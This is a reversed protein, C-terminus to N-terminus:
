IVDAPLQLFIKGWRDDSQVFEAFPGGVRNDTADDCESFPNNSEGDVIRVAYVIFTGIINCLILVYITNNYSTHVQVHASCTSRAGFTATRLDHCFYLVYHFFSRVHFM